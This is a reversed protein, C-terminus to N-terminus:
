LRELKATFHRLYESEYIVKLGKVRERNSAIEFFIIGMLIVTSSSITLWTVKEKRGRTQNPSKSWGM